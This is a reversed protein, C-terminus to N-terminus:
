AHFDEPKVEGTINAHKHYGMWFQFVTGGVAIGVIGALYGYFASNLEINGALMEFENPFGGAFAGIGRMLAYAGVSATLEILIAKKFRYTIYVGTVGGIILLSWLLLSSKLFQALLLNYLLFFGFVGGIGGLLAFSYKATKKVFWGVLVALTAAIIISIATATPKSIDIGGFLSAIFCTFFFAIITVIAAVVWDFLLGGFFTSVVGFGLLVVGIVVPHDNILRM